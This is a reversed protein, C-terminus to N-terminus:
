FGMLYFKGVSTAAASQMGSFLSGAAVNPIASQAAAALSGKLVGTATFGMMPGIYAAGLGGLKVVPWAITNVVALATAPDM